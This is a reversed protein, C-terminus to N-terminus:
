LQKRIQDIQRGRSKIVGLGDDRYLGFNPIIKRIELILHLGVLECTEAGDLSGMTTDFHSGNKKIWVEGNKIVFAKHSNRFIQKDEEPIDVVTAAFELAKLFIYIYTLPM